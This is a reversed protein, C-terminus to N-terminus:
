IPWINLDSRRKLFITNERFQIAANRLTLSVSFLQSHLAFSIAIGKWESYLVELLLSYPMRWFIDFACKLKARM